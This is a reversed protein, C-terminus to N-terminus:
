SEKQWPFGDEVDLLLSSCIRVLPGPQNCIIACTSRYGCRHKVPRTGLNLCVGVGKPLPNPHPRLQTVLFLFSREM